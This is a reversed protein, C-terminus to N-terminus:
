YIYIICRRQISSKLLHMLVCIVSYWLGEALIASVQKFNIDGNKHQLEYAVKLIPVIVDPINLMKSKTWVGSMEGHACVNEIFDDNKDIKHLQQILFKKNM